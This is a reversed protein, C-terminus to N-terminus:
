GECVTTSIDGIVFEWNATWTVPTACTKEINLFNPKVNVVCWDGDLCITYKRGINKNVVTNLFYKIQQSVTKTCMVEDVIDTPENAITWGVNITTINGEAKIVIACQDPLQPIAFVQNPTRQNISINKFNRIHVTHPPLPCVPPCESSCVATLKVIVDGM